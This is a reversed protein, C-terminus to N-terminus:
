ERLENFFCPSCSNPKVVLGFKPPCFPPRESHGVPWSPLYGDAEPGMDMEEEGPEQSQM